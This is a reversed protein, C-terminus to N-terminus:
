SCVARLEHCCQGFSDLAESEWDTSSRLARCMVYEITAISM